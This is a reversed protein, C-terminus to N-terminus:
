KSSPTRFLVLALLLMAAAFGVLRAVHPLTAAADGGRLLVTLLAELGWNMPSWDALRQMFAPMVFKPVMIGGVAAMLVNLIPGVATAQTHTRVLCALVLALSVAAASVAALALCLAAWDIGALSLADGGIRPMLWVGVALMLAAQLANVGLYPLAKSAILMSRPVGLSQLRALAGSSREQVFLGALSAVVFFMGFVLWAPVNQQVATPRPGGAAFRTATVMAQVSAESSSQPQAEAGGGAAALVGRVKMEGVAAILEAHLANLLNSDLAPETLLHIRPRTPLTPEALDESAGPEISIVYKLRGDRLQAQWDPPLAAPAGHGRAWAALLDKAPAGADRADVAHRLTRLPPNYVDKLALSMIVIFMVPMLFLAAMGHVDRTLALLEKKILAALM